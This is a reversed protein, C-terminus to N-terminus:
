TCFIIRDTKQPIADVKVGTALAPLYIGYFFSVNFTDIYQIFTNFFFNEEKM